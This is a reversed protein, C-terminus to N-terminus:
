RSGRGAAVLEWEPLYAEPDFGSRASYVMAGARPGTAARWPCVGDRLFGVWHPHMLDALERPPRPGLVETVGPADLVDWVFPLELCHSAAGTVSSRHRFDYLWTRAGLGAAAREAAVRVAPVRFTLEAVLQGALHRPGLAAAAAVLAEVAADGVGRQALCAGVEDAPVDHDLALVFENATTGILLPIGDHFGAAVGEEFTLVTEGDVVPAFALPLDAYPDTLRGAFDDAATPLARLAVRDGLPKVQALVADEDVASWADPDDAPLGVLGALERALSRARDPTMRSLAPSQAVAARFLGRAGPASLLTLVSGAGASQGGVTVRGPDGGFAAINERVWTLAAIQDLVGRNRPAGDIAGFGDFALRYSMAVAVVGDRAFARGDYWPSSPSGATYGGGHIWVFVPLRAGPDGPAPTFVNVNLTEEGPFSPEPVIPVGASFRQPTAGFETADRVGAWPRVPAPARYRHEGTPPAAYPIGLFAASAGRWWGRVRGDRLRVEVFEGM